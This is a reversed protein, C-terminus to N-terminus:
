FVHMNLNLKIPPQRKTSMMTMCASMNYVPVCVCSIAVCQAISKLKQIIIIENTFDGREEKWWRGRAGNVSSQLWSSCCATGLQTRDKRRGMTCLKPWQGDSGESKSEHCPAWRTQAVCLGETDSCSPYYKCVCCSAQNLVTQAREEYEFWM